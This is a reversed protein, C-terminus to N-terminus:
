FLTGDQATLPLKLVRAGDAGPKALLDLATATLAADRPKMAGGEALAELAAGYGAIEASLAAQPRMERDLALTGRAAVALDRWRLDMAEVEVTGGAESWAILAAPLDGPVLPGEITADAAFRAIGRGMPGGWRPPLTLDDIAVSVELTDRAVRRGGAALREIRVEDDPTSLTLGSAAVDVQEIVGRPLLFQAVGQDVTATVVRDGGAVPRYSLEQEAPLTVQLRTLDWPSGAIVLRDAKWAWARPHDPEAIAPAALAATLRFPFGSIQLRDHEVVFGAARRAVIWAEIGDRLSNASVFWTTSFGVATLLVVAAVAVVTRPPTLAMRERTPRM